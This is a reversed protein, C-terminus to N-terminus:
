DKGLEDGLEAAREAAGRVARVFAAKVAQDDLM